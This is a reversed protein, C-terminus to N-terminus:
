SLSAWRQPGPGAERVPGSDASAAPASTAGGKALAPANGDANHRTRYAGVLGDHFRTTPQSDGPLEPYSLASEHRSAHGCLSALGDGIQRREERLM